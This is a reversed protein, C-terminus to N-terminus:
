CKLRGAAKAAVHPRRCSEPGWDRKSTKLGWMQVNQYMGAAAGGAGGGLRRFGAAGGACERDSWGGGPDVGAAGGACERDSGDPECLRPGGGESAFHGLTVGSGSGGVFGGSRSAIVGGGVCTTFTAGGFILYRNDKSSRATEPRLHLKM